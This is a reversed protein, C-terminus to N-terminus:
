RMTEGRRKKNIVKNRYMMEDSEKTYTQLSDERDPIRFVYGASAHIAYAKTKTSNFQELEAEIRDLFCKGEEESINEAVIVFEDGGTRAVISQGGCNHGIVECIKCLAFDGEVHGYQDNIQKMGDMDIIAFFVPLGERKATELIAGGGDEFGRRNYMGTLPDRNYMHELKCILREKECYSLVAQIKNSIIINWEFHLEGTVQTSEFSLAEYGFCRDQFHLPAFYWMQPSDDTLKQPILNKRDFLVREASKYADNQLAIRMEMRDTYDSFDKREEINECLCVCYNRFGQIDYIYHSMIECMEAITNCEGLHVSMFTFQFSQHRNVNVKEHQDRRAQIAEIDYSRICGCSEKPIVQAEFYYDEAQKSCEQKDHIIDIAKVGMEYFPVTMTTVSPAFSLAETLGDYGSVCIDEPIRYGRRILESAVAVAMYDNACVIVQPVNNKQLFWDCAQVGMNKWFDGYFMQHEEVPLHYEKMVRVFCAMRETADWHDKPGSMFCIKTFGHTEIFHRLIGEMCTKNDVLLNSCGEQMERISVIPCHCRGMVEDLILQRCKSSGITDLALIVGDLSEYPPLKYLQMEGDYYRANREYAGFTSFVVVNYGKEQAAAAIGQCLKNQFEGITNEIFVGITKRGNLFM